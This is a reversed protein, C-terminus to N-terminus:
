LWAVTIKKKLSKQPKAKIKKKKRKQQVSV